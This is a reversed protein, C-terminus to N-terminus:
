VKRSVPSPTDIWASGSGSPCIDSPAGQIAPPVYAASNVVVTLPQSTVSCGNADTTTVTYTMTESPSDSIMRTTAGGPSWQYTVWGSGADLTVPQGTCSPNTGGVVMVVPPQCTQAVAVGPLICVLHFFLVLAFRRM